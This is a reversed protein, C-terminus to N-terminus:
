LLKWFVKRFYLCSLHSVQLAPIVDFLKMKASGICLDTYLQTALRKQNHSALDAFHVGKEAESGHNLVDRMSSKTDLFPFKYMANPQGHRSRPFQIPITKTKSIKTDVM